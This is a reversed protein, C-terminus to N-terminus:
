AEGLEAARHLWGALNPRQSPDAAAIARYRDAAAVRYAAMLATMGPRILAARLAAKTTAGIAGDQALRAGSVRNIAAQLLKGAAVAGGNVAQDFFAEGLPSPLDECGYRTWFCRDYLQEALAPTLRRVDAGDIDGDMDLDFRTRIAPDLRAEAALFRLSVGYKTPGGRDSAANVYGGETRLLRAWAAAFRASPALPASAASM